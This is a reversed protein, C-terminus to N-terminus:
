RSVFLTMTEVPDRGIFGNPSYGSGATWRVVVIATRAGPVPLRTDRRKEAGRPLYAMDGAYGASLWDEFAAATEVPGLAAIGVLDFGLGHAQAKILDELTPTSGTALM